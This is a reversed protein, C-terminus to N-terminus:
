SSRPPPSLEKVDGWWPRHLILHPVLGPAGFNPDVRRRRAPSSPRDSPPRWVQVLFKGTAGCLRSRAARLHRTLPALRPCRARLAKWSRAHPPPPPPMVGPWALGTAKGAWKREGTRASGPVFSRPPWLRTHRPRPAWGLPRRTKEPLTEGDSRKIRARGEKCQGSSRRAKKRLERTRDETEKQM